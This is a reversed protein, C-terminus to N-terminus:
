HTCIGGRSADRDLLLAVQPRSTCCSTAHQRPDSGRRQDARTRDYEYLIGRVRCRRVVVVRHECDVVHLDAHTARDAAVDARTVVAMRVIRQVHVTARGDVAVGVNRL